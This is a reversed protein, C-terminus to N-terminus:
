FKRFYEYKAFQVGKKVTGDSPKVLRLTNGAVTCDFRRRMELIFRLSSTPNCRKQM